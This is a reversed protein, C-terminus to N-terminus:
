KRNKCQCQMVFREKGEYAINYVSTAEKWLYEVSTDGPFLRTLILAMSRAEETSSIVNTLQILNNCDVDRKVLDEAKNRAYNISKLVGKKLEEINEM